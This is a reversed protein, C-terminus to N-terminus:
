ELNAAQERIKELEGKMDLVRRDVEPDSVKSAITTIERRIEQVLFELLRGIERAGGEFAANLRGMHADLRVLEETVDARSALFAVEQALRDEPVPVEALLEGVRARVADAMRAPADRVSDRVEAICTGIRASRESLDRVLREGEIRRATSHDELARELAESVLIGAQELDVSEGEAPELVGPLRLLVEARPEDPLGLDERMQQWAQHMAAAVHPNYTYAPRSGAGGSFTVQVEVRGRAVAKKARERLPAELGYLASPLRFRLELQRGNVSRIEVTCSAEDLTVVGKGYGTMSRIM